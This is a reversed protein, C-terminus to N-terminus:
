ANGTQGMKIKYMEIAAAEVDDLMEKIAKDIRDPSVKLIEAIEQVSKKHNFHMEAILVKLADDIISATLQADAREILRVADDFSLKNVNVADRIKNVALEYIRTQESDDEYWAKQAM